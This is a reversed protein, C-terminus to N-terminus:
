LKAGRAYWHVAIKVRTCGGGELIRQLVLWCSLSLSFSPCVPCNEQPVYQISSCLEIKSKLFSTYGHWYM